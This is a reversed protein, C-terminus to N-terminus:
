RTIKLINSVASWFNPYLQRIMPHKLPLSAPTRGNNTYTLLIAKSLLKQLLSRVIGAM